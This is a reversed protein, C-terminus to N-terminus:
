RWKLADFPTAVQIDPDEYEQDTFRYGLRHALPGLGFASNVITHHCLGFYGIYASENVGAVAQDNGPQLADTQWSGLAGNEGKLYYFVTPRTKSCFVMAMFIGQDKKTMPVNYDVDQPWESGFSRAAYAYLTGLPSTGVPAIDEVSFWGCYSMHCRTPILKKTLAAFEPGGPRTESREQARTYTSSALLVFGAVLFSIRFMHNM